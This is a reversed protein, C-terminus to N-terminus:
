SFDFYKDSYKDRQYIEAENEKILDVLRDSFRVFAKTIKNADGKTKRFKTKVTSMAYFKEIPNISIGSRLSEVEYNDGNVWVLWKHDVPDNMAIGSTLEKTDGILGFQVAFLYSGGLGQRVSEVYINSNPFNSLLSNKINEQLLKVSM